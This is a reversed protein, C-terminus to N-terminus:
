VCLSYVYKWWRNQYIIVRFTEKLIRELLPHIYDSKELGQKSAVYTPINDMPGPHYLSVLAIEEICDPKLKNFSRENWGKWAPASWNFWKKLANWLDKPLKFSSLFHWDEIKKENRNILRCVYQILNTYWTWSLGIKDAWSEGCVEHQISHNTSGFKSWLICSCFKIINSQMDGFSELDDLCWSLIYNERERIGRFPWESAFGWGFTIQWALLWNRPLQRSICKTPVTTLPTFQWCERCKM